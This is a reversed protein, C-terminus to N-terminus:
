TLNRYIVSVSFHVTHLRFTKSGTLKQEPGWINSSDTLLIQRFFERRPQVKTMDSLSLVTETKHVNGNKISNQDSDSHNSTLFVLKVGM